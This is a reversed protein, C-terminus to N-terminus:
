TLHWAVSLPFFREPPRNVSKCCQIIIVLALQDKDNAVSIDNSAAVITRGRSNNQVNEADVRFEIGLGQQELRDTFTGPLEVISLDVGSKVLELSVNHRSYRTSPRDDANYM